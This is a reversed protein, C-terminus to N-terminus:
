SVYIEQVSLVDCDAEFNSKGLVKKGEGDIWKSVWVVYVHTCTRQPNSCRTRDSSIQTMYVWTNRCRATDCNNGSFNIVYKLYSVFIDIEFNDSDSTALFRAERFRFNYFYFTGLCKRTLTTRILFKMIEFFGSIQFFFYSIRSLIWFYM